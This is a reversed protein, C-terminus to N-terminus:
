NEWEWLLESTKGWIINRTKYVSREGPPTVLRQEPLKRVVRCPRMFSKATILVPGPEVSLYYVTYGDLRSEFESEM